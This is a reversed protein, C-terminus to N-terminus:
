MCQEKYKRLIMKLENNDRLFEYEKKSEIETILAQIFRRGVDSFAKNQGTHAYRYYLPSEAMNWPKGAEELTKKILKVCLAEDKRYISVLLHPVVTGYNWLGFLSVMHDAIEAIKEGECHNGSEEEIEILKYLYSQINIVAQMLRGELFIAAANKDEQHILVNAKMITADTSIDPIKDLLISAEGYKEMQIYKAALMYISSIRVKDDGSNLTRELWDIIIADYRSKKETVGVLTLSSNLITACMNILLDCHPYEQIKKTAMEFASDISDELSVRSLENAFQGIEIDTLEERFSFLENMDIELLRALVPLLLIDPYSNGKEWKNVAPTSVGLYSAVQEQTLGANKRYTKIQEGIKM